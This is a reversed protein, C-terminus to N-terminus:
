NIPQFQNFASACLVRLSASFFRFINEANSQASRAEANFNKMFIDFASRVLSLRRFSCDTLWGRFGTKIATENEHM